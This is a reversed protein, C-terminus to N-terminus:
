MEGGFVFTPRDSYVASRKDLLDAALKPDSVIVINKGMVTVSSIPGYLTKHKAWHLWDYEKPLDLLNGILPLPTPGPPFPQRTSQRSLSLWRKFLLVALSVLLLELAVLSIM